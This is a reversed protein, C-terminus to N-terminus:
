RAGGLGLSSALTDAVAELGAKGETNVFKLDHGIDAIRGVAATDAPEFGPREILVVLGGRDKIIAAEQPRIIDDCVIGGLTADARAIWEQLLLDSHLRRAWSHLTSQLHSPRFHCLRRQPKDRQEGEIEDHTLRFGAALMDRVPDGIRLRTVGHASALRRAVIAKGSGPVGIIAVLKTHIGSV